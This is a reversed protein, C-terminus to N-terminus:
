SQKRLPSEPAAIGRFWRRPNDHYIKRLVPEPLGLGRVARKRYKMEGSSAFFQWEEDLRRNLSVWAKEEDANGIQYDTGFTIRDQYKLLFEGAKTRDEAALYRVRAACDV